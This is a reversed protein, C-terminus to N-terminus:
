RTVLVEQFANFHEARAQPLCAALCRIADLCDAPVSVEVEGHWHFRVLAADPSRDTAPSPKGPRRSRRSDSVSQPSPTQASAAGVRKAWYYFTNVSVGERKCFQAVTLGSARRRELRGEWAQRKEGDQRSAM